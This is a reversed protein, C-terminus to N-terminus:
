ILGEDELIQKHDYALEMRRVEDPAFWGVDSCEEQQACHPTGAVIKSYHPLSTVISKKPTPTNYYRGIFREVKVTVGIEEKAERIAAQEGTEGWDIFGGVLGWYGPYMSSQDARKMLLIKGDDDTILNLSGVWPHDYPENM